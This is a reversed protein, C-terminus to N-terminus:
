LKDKTYFRGLFGNESETLDDKDKVAYINLNDSIKIDDWKEVGAEDKEVRVRTYFPM